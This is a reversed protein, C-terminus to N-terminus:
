NCRVESLIFGGGSGKQGMGEKRGFMRLGMLPIDTNHVERSRGKVETGGVKGWYGKEWLSLPNIGTTQDVKFERHRHVVWVFKRRILKRRRRREKGTLTSAEGM